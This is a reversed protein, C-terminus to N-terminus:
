SRSIAGKDEAVPLDELWIIGTRKFHVSSLSGALGVTERVQAM